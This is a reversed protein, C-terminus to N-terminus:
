ELLMKCLHLNCVSFFAGPRVPDQIGVIAIATLESVISDENDWDIEGTYAIQNEGIHGGAPVYDKTPWVFQVCDM